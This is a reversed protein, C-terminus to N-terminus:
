PLQAAPALPERRPTRGFRLNGDDIPAERLARRDGLWDHSLRWPGDAASKPILGRGRNLYGSSFGDLPDAETLGHDAPLHPTVTDADWTDMQALLRCLWTAVTDVRATWAANLYGFLAAFNPVNSFMCNRYYWHQSFDVPTGDLSVTMKGLTALKLGTATVIVDAEVFEGDDMHLGGDTVSDITGTVIRAHGERLATFLDGDPVFCLRQEWPGYPPAFDRDAFKPGMEKKVRNLLYQSVDQPNRRSQRFLWYQLLNNRLRILAYAWRSPLFRRLLLALRDRGPEAYYWSPTRQVMTVRAGAEALAPVLTVATAGSGVVAIRKGSPDFDQPWFQPHLMEGRFQAIGPIAPDHPTDYDYYGSGAFVFRARYDQPGDPTDARVTWLRSTSDWDARRVTRRYRIADLVGHDRAVDHLYSLIEEGRAVARDGTWPAFEFGLTYMDSDSRVGPYRFLDWTGGLRERRELIAFRKGPLRRVLHAAMGIGSIGAGIILLDLPPEDQSQM